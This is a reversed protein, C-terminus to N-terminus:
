DRKDIDRFIMVQMSRRRIGHALPKYRKMERGSSDMLAMEVSKVGPPCSVRAVALYRPLTEWRRTDPQELGFLALRVIAGAFPSHKDVEDAITDKIWIRTIAKAERMAAMKHESQRALDVIDTLVYGKGLLRGDAYIHPSVAYDPPWAYNLIDRGRITRGISIICVLDISGEQAAPDSNAMDNAMSIRGTRADIGTGKARILEHAKSYELEANSPDDQLQFTLGAIYRSYADEPFDGRRVPDLSRLILRGEVAADDWEGVALFSHAAFVHTMTREFPVGQFDQLTDNIILGAFGRSVSYTRLEELHSAAAILDMASERYRGATQRIIGREMLFLVRNERACDMEAMLADAKPINGSFFYDRAAEIRGTTCGSGVPLILIAMLWAHRTILFGWPSAQQM